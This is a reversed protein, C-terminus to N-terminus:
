RPYRDGTSRVHRCPDRAPRLLPVGTPIVLVIIMLIYRTLLWSERSNITPLGLFAPSQKTWYPHVDNEGRGDPFGGSSEIIPTNSYKFTYILNRLTM